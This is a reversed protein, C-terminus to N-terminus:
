LTTILFLYNKYLRGFELNLNEMDSETKSSKTKKRPITVTSSGSSTVTSSGPMPINPAANEKDACENRSEVLKVM